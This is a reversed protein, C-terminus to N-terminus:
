VNYHLEQTIMFVMSKLNNISCLNVKTNKKFVHLVESTLNKLGYCFDLRLLDTHQADDTHIFM